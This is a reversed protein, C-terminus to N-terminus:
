KAFGYREAQLSFLDHYLGGGAMLSDHDGIEVVEGQDLVMVVDASRVTAFRHSVFVVIRDDGLSHLMDFLHAEAQPDLSASPEDMVVIPADRFLGRAIALRQWQGGSVDIGDTFMKGLRTDLGAPHADILEDVGARRAAGLIGPEDDMRDVDGLGIGQRITLLYRTFEQFVAAIQRRVLAPDCDALDIGDWSISGGSPTLLDCLLKALTSKGSGNAGVVAMVQGRRLEFSVEHLADNTAGPYRYTLRDVTLRTPPTPPAGTPRQARLAPLSARFGEFDRLFTVGEHVAGFATGVAQLRSSLQQLGVIAVAADGITISGRAALILAISLTAVFVTTTVISGVTTLLVRRRVVEGLRTLRTAWLGAHWRRLTPAIGYARVEMAEDRESLVWELYTRERLLETLDREMEYRTRNNRVNVLAVPVYAIVAVPVLVPAVTFLVVVIGIAVVVTSVITVIGFVVASSQTAAANRARELRDHFEADEYTELDVEVAVDLIQDMAHRYVKESLPLRLESAIAQGLSAVLLLVGLLVLYPALEGGDVHGAGALLDLVKRGVLLQGAVALSTAVTAALVLLLLGRGSVYVLGIAVRITRLTARM